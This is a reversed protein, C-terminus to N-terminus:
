IHGALNVHVDSQTYDITTVYGGFDVNMTSKVVINVGGNFITTFLAKIAGFSLKLKLALAPSDVAQNAPVNIESDTDIYGLENGNYILSATVHKIVIPSNFPNFANIGAKAKM